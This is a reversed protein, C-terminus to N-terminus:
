AGPPCNQRPCTCIQTYIAKRCVIRNLLGPSGVPPRGSFPLQDIGHSGTIVIRRQARVLYQHECYATSEHTSQYGRCFQWSIVAKYALCGMECQKPMRALWVRYTRFAKEVDSPMRPLWVRYTRFAKVEGRPMCVLWVRYTYGLMLIDSQMCRACVIQSWCVSENCSQKEAFCGNHGFESFLARSTPILARTTRCKKPFFIGNICM